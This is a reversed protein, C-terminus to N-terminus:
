DPEESDLSEWILKFAAAQAELIVQFDKPITPSPLIEERRVDWIAPQLRPNSALADTALYQVAQRFSRKPKPATLSLKLARDDGGYRM